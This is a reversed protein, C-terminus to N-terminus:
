QVSDLFAAIDLIEQDTLTMGVMLSDITQLDNILRGENILETGRGGLDSGGLATTTDHSGAAHCVNCESDYRAMGAGPDGGTGTSNVTVTVTGDNTTNGDSITYDFTDTGSFGAAPTYTCVGTGACNVTGGNASPNDFASRFLM